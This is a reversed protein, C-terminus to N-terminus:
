YRRPFPLLPSRSGVDCDEYPDPSMQPWPDHARAPIMFRGAVARNRANICEVRRLIDLSQQYPSPRQPPLYFAGGGPALPWPIARMTQPLRTPDPGVLPYLVRAYLVTPRGPPLGGYPAYALLSRLNAPPEPLPGRLSFATAEALAQQPVAVAWLALVLTVTATAYWLQKMYPNTM